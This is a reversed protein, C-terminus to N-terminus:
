FFGEEPKVMRAGPPAKALTEFRKSLETKLEIKLEFVRCYGTNLHSQATLGMPWLM